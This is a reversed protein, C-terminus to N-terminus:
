RRPRAASPSIPRHRAIMMQGLSVGASSIRQFVALLPLQSTPVLQDVPLVGPLASEAVNFTAPVYVTVNPTLGAEIWRRITLEPVTVSCLLPVALVSGVSAAPPFLETKANPLEVTSFKPAVLELPM